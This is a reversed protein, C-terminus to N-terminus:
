IKAVRKTPFINVMVAVNVSVPPLPDADNLTQQRGELQLYNLGKSLQKIYQLADTLVRCLTDDSQRWPYPLRQKCILWYARVKVSGM